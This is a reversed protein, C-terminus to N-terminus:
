HRGGHYGGGGNGAFYGIDSSKELHTPFIFVNGVVKGFASISFFRDGIEFRFM